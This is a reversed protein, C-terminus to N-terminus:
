RKTGGWGFRVVKGAPAGEDPPLVDITAYLKGYSLEVAGPLGVEAYTSVTGHRDIKSIKGGFLEAVYVDGRPNVALGTPTALGGAVLTTTGHWPDIKYVSGLPVQEGIGGGETTVYLQGHPGVQVDTPVPEGYYTHGVVCDPAGLGTALDQTITVPVPPLVAVTRIHGWPSIALVANMGADAVYTTHKTQFTAYPHSDPLGTYTVPGFQDAPWQAACDADLDTIGYTNVSDPNTANEYARVHALTHAGSKTLVKVWSDAPEGTDPDSSTETFVIRGKRVSVGGVENGGTSAYLNTTTGDPRVLDLTGGFNQTVLAGHGSIALSLPSLLGDALTTPTPPPPAAVAPAAILGGALTASALVSM